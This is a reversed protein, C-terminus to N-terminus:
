VSLNSFIFNETESIVERNVDGPCASQRRGRRSTIPEILWIMYMLIHEVYLVRIEM